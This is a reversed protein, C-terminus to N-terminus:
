PAIYIDIGLNQKLIYSMKFSCFDTYPQKLKHNMKFKSMRGVVGLVFDLMLFCDRCTNQLPVPTKLIECFESSFM